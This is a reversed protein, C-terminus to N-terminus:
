PSTSGSLTFPGRQPLQGLRGTWISGITFNDQLAFDLLANKSLFSSRELLNLKNVFYIKKLDTLHHHSWSLRGRYYCGFSSHTESM